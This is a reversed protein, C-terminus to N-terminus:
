EGGSRARSGGAHRSHAPVILQRELQVQTPYPANLLFNYRTSGFRTETNPGPSRM